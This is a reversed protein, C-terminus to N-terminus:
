RKKKKGGGRNNNNNDNNDDNNPDLSRLTELSFRSTCFPSKSSSRGKWLGCPVIDAEM